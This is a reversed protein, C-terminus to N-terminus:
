GGAAAGTSERVVLYTPLDLQRAPSSAAPARVTEVMQRVALAGMQEYPRAVTTLAPRVHGASSIDDFGVVSLQAPVAVGMQRAADLVGIAMLDNAAFIATPPRKRRLLRQALRFGSPRSFDGQLVDDPRVGAEQLGQQYGAVRERALYPAAGGSIFAIRRHGLGTLHLTAQRAGERDQTSVWAIGNPRDFADILVVPYSRAALQRAFALPVRWSVIILGDLLDSALQPDRLDAVRGAGTTRLLVQYGLREAERGAGRILPWVWESVVDLVIMGLLQTRGVALNRGRQSPVYNLQRIAQEVRESMEPSVGSARNIVRSVSMKSVGARAAVDAMTPRELEGARAPM